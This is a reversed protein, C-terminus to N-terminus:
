GLSGFTLIIPGVRAHSVILLAAFPKVALCGFGAVHDRGLRKRGGKRNLHPHFAKVQRAASSGSPHSFPDGRRM